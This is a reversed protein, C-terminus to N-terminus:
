AKHLCMRHSLILESVSSIAPGLVHFYFCLSVQWPLLYEYVVLGGIFVFFFVIFPLNSKRELVKALKEQAGSDSPETNIKFVECLLLTWIILQKGLGHTRKADEQKGVKRIEM